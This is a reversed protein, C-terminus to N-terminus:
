TVEVTGHSPLMYSGIVISNVQVVGSPEIPTSSGISVQGVYVTWGTLFPSQPDFTGLQIKGVWIKGM